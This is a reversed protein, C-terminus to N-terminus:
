GKFIPFTNAGQPMVIVSPHEKGIRERAAKLLADFDSFPELHARRALEENQPETYMFMSGMNKYELQKVALWATILFNKRAETELSLLDPHKFWEFFEPPDQILPCEAMLVAVGGTKMAHVANDITKQSQYLNIDKPYGGATAIVIDAQEEIEVGYIKEVMRCADDWASIWNGAFISTLEGELNPVVNIMFDPKTFAAIEMMDEHIPNGRTKGSASLPNTGGGVQDTLGYLHNQQITKIGTVGPLISKRGGGFGALYHYIVGGTMIMCDAEQIIRNVSVETGRSTKGLYVMDEDRWADHNLVRIRRCVGDSCLEVFEEDTNARHGGVGVVITIDEDSVGAQNLYDVLVPMTESNRQWARTIDSVIIAVKKGPGVLERLPPADIPKDLAALYSGKLDDIAPSDTGVLECLLEERPIEFSVEGKGYKLTFKHNSV